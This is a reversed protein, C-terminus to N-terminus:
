KGTQARRSIESMLVDFRRAMAPLKFYTGSVPRAPKGVEVQWQGAPTRSFRANGAAEPAASIVLDVTGDNDSDYFAITRDGVMQIAAEFDWKRDGVLADLDRFIAPPTDNDLDLLMAEPEDEGAILVDPRRDGDLDDLAVNPGLSWPDPVVLLPHSPVAKLFAQLEDLHVHYSFKAFAPNRPVAFTVAVVRGQPDVVPGGSDGPNIGISTLLIRRSPMRELDAAIQDRKVGAAALRTMVVNVLDTPMRGISAIEGTRVTWLLGAAPHGVAVAPAGPKPAAPALTLFPLRTAAAVNELRLVALDPASDHKYVFARRPERQLSMTGDAGLTGLHVMAYSARRVPDHRLGDAIVHHNTVITGQADILFGTGHGSDTRVVVVAPAVRQYLDSVDGRPRETNVEPRWPQEARDTLLRRVSEPTLVVSPQGGFKRPMVPGASTDQSAGALIASMFIAAAVALRM